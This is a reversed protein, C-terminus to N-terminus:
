KEESPQNDTMERYRVMLHNALLRRDQSTNQIDNWRRSVGDGFNWEGETWNCAPRLMELDDVFHKKSPIGKHRYRGAISDMIYGMGVVGAGHTLRSRRPPRTWAKPFVEAVARWFTKLVELMTEVDHDGSRSDRYHYLVGDNLSNELMNLVSTDKITGEPNTHTKIRQHLPSDEDYNLREMLRAPLQRKSLNEPLRCDTMPLLEYILGKPLPKASNVLMFQERQEEQDEAIFGIVCVEFNEKSTNQLAAMRQQGDVIWAPKDHSSANEDLPVILEGFHSHGNEVPEFSVRDDFAVVLANPLIAEESDLYSRIEDIHSLVEPRQYGGLKADEDRQLRSVTVFSPLVDGSVAFAYLRRGRSQRLTIAPLRLEEEM